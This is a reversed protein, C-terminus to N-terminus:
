WTVTIEVYEFDGFKMTRTSYDGFSFLLRNKKEDFYADGLWARIVNPQWEGLALGSPPTTTPGAPVSGGGANEGTGGGTGPINGGGGTGPINGGGGTGPINGGGGTGPINGGGGIGPDNGGGGTGPDNGGGGTGPNNGGGGTGPNGGGGTGPDDCVIGPPRNLLSCASQLTVSVNFSAAAQGAEAPPAGAVTVAMLCAVSLARLRWSRRHAIPERAIPKIATMMVSA